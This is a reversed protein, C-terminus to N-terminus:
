GRARRLGGGTFSWGLNVGLSALVILGVGLGQLPTLARGYVLWDVLVATLPYIFQLVAIVSVPMKPVAGYILAYTLGTHIIGLGALWGWQHLGVHTMAGTPVLWPLSVVGVACQIMTLLHPRLGGLAKAILTVGAYLVSAILTFGIGILYASDASLTSRGIGAALALGVFAIGIWTLRAAGVQERFVLAGLLVVWFPQVHFVVTAVAIGVRQLAGFFFVWQSVMLVGSLLALGLLRRNFRQSRFYGKWACYAAMTALGFVCRYFVTTIPDLGAQEVFVGMTGMLVAAVSFGLVGERSSAPQRPSSTPM